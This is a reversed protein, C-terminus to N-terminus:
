RAVLMSVVEEFGVIVSKIALHLVSGPIVTKENVTGSIARAGILQNHRCLTTATTTYKEALSSVTVQM